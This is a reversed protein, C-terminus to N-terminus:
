KQAGEGVSMGVAMSYLAAFIKVGDKQQLGHLAGLLGVRPLMLKELGRDKECGELNDNETGKSYNQKNEPLTMDVELRVMCASENTLGPSLFSPPSVSIVEGVLGTEEKFERKAAQAPDEDPDILGAPLEITYADLPPRFQKVAVIEDKFPDDPDHKLIALIVVADISDESKKTTRVVRDWKRLSTGGEAADDPVLYSLTELRMWRTSGVTETKTFDVNPGSPTSDASSMIASPPHSRYRQPFNTTHYLSAFSPYACGFKCRLLAQLQFVVVCSALYSNASRRSTLIM